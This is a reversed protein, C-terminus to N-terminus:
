YVGRLSVPNLYLFWKKQKLFEKHMFDPVSPAAERWFCLYIIRASRIKKSTLARLCRKMDSDPKLLTQMISVHCISRQM